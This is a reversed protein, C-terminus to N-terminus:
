RLGVQNKGADAVPPLNVAPKVYINVEDESEQGKADTVQSMYM